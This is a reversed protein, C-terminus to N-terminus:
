SWVYVVDYDEVEGVKNEVGAEDEKRGEGM